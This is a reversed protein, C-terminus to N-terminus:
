ELLLIEPPSNIRPQHAMQGVGRSVYLIAGSALRYLGRAYRSNSYIPQGMLVIGGHTHGALITADGQIHDAANPDHVVVLGSFRWYGYDRSERWDIGLLRGFPTSVAEDRLTRVGFQRLVEVTEEVRASWYEHNGLVAYGPGANLQRLFWALARPEVTQEDMMDGGLIFFEPTSKELVRIAGEAHDEGQRHIHLDAVLAVRRGLGLDLTTLEPSSESLLRTASYGAASAIASLFGALILRRRPLRATHM